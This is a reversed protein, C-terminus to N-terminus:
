HLSRACLVGSPEEEVLTAQVSWDTLDWWALVARDTNVDAIVWVKGPRHLIRSRTAPLWVHGGPHELLLGPELEYTRGDVEMRTGGSDHVYTVTM